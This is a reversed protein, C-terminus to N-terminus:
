IKGELSEKFFGKIKKIIRHKLLHLNPKSLHMVTSIEDFSLEDFWFYAAFLRERSSLHEEIIHAIKALSQQQATDKEPDGKQQDKYHLTLSPPDELSTQRSIRKQASTLYNITANCSCVRLWTALSCREQWRRLKDCDKELLSNWIFQECDQLDELTLTFQYRAVTGRVVSSILRVYREYFIEWAWQSGQICEALLNEDSINKTNNANM